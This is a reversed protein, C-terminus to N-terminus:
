SGVEPMSGVVYALEVCNTHHNIVEMSFSLLAVYVNVCVAFHHVVCQAEAPCCAFVVALQELLNSVSNSAVFSSSAVNKKVPDGAVRANAAIFSRVFESARSSVVRLCM